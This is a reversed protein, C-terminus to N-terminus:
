LFRFETSHTKRVGGRLAFGLLPHCTGVGPLPMTGMFYRPTDNSNGASLIDNVMHPLWVGVRSWDFSILRVLYLIQELIDTCLPRWIFVPHVGIGCVCKPGLSEVYVWAKFQVGRPKSRHCTKVGKLGGEKLALYLKTIVMQVNVKCCTVERCPRKAVLESNRKDQTPSHSLVVIKLASLKQEWWTIVDCLHCSVLMLRRCRLDERSSSFVSSGSLRHLCILSRCLDDPSVVSGCSEWLHDQM